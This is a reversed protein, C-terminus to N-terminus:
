TLIGLVKNQSQYVQYLRPLTIRLYNAMTTRLAAKKTNQVPISISNPLKQYYIDCDFMIM